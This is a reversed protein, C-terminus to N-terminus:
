VSVCIARKTAFIGDSFALVGNELKGPFIKRYNVAGCDFYLKNM